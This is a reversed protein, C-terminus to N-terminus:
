GIINDIDTTGYESADAPTSIEFSEDFNFELEIEADVTYAKGQLTISYTCEVSVTDYKGNEIEVTMRAETLEVSDSAGELQSAMAEELIVKASDSASAYVIFNEGDLKGKTSEGFDSGSLKGIFILEGLITDIDDATAYAKSKIERPTEDDIAYNMYSYVVGDVITYSTKFLTKGEGYDISISNNTKIKGDKFYLKTQAAELQEFIGKAEEDACEFDFDVEVTYAKEGLAKDAKKKAKAYDKTCSALSLAMALALSLSIIRKFVSNM